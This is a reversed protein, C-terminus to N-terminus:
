WSLAEALSELRPSVSVTAHFRPVFAELTKLGMGTIYAVVTEGPRVVGRAALRSLTALTVGGATETFIGETRALLGVADVIEEDTVAEVAGGSRRVEQLAYYGDAPDGISLSRAVTDPRRVPRIEDTGELFAAAVPACGAAQAGSVRVSPEEHLLGAAFLDRFAQGV